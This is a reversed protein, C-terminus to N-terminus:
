VCLHRLAEGLLLGRVGQVAHRVPHPQELQQLEVRGRGRGQSHESHGHQRGVSLQQGRVGAGGKYSRTVAVMVQARRENAPPAAPVRSQNTSQDTTAVVSAADLDLM